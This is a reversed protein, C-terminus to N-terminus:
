LAGAQAMRALLLPRGIWVVMDDFTTTPEGDEYTADSVAEYSANAGNPTLDPGTSYVLAVALTNKLVEAGSYNSVTIPNGAHDILKIQDAYVTDARIRFGAATSAFARDVRYRFHGTWPASEAGRTQGWADIPPLGLTRWPLIGETDVVCNGTAADVEEEGYRADLPNRRTGPCPLRGHAIAHGILAARIDDLLAATHDRRQAALRASFPVLLAAALIALILLVIALEALTFGRQRPAQLPTLFRM